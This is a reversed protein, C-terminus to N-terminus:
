GEWDLSCFRKLKYKLILCAIPIAVGLVINLQSAILPILAELTSRIDGGVIEGIFDKPEGSELDCVLKRIDHKHKNWIHKGQEYFSYIFENDAIKETGDNAAYGIQSFFIDSNVNENEILEIMKDTIEKM